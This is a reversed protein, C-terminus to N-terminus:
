KETVVVIFPAGESKKRMKRCAESKPLFFCSVYHGVVRQRESPGLIHEAGVDRVHVLFMM